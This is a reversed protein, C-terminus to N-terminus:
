KKKSFYKSEFDNNMKDLIIRANKNDFELFEKHRNIHVGIITNNDLRILKLNEKDHDYGVLKFKDGQRFSNGGNHGDRNFIGTEGIVSDFKSKIKIKLM